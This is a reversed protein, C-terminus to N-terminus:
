ERHLSHVHVSGGHASSPEEENVPIVATGNDKVAYGFDTYMKSQRPTGMVFGERLFTAEVVKGVMEEYRDIEMTREKRTPIPIQTQTQM